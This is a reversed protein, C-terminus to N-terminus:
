PARVNVCLCCITATTPKFYRVPLCDRIPWDEAALEEESGKMNAVKEGSTNVSM